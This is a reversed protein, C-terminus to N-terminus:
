PAGEQLQQQALQRKLKERGRNIHTKVTGLPMGLIDSCEQHTFDQQFCLTIVTREDPALVDLLHRLDHRLQAQREPPPQRADHGIQESPVVSPPRKRAHSIHLNYAIQFLWTRFAAQHRFTHLAKWARIFTEQALDDALADNRTLRRLFLRLSSQHQRVLTAFAHQDAHVVARAVLQADFLTM